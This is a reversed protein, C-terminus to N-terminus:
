IILTYGRFTKHYLDNIACQYINNFPEKMYKDPSGYSLRLREYAGFHGDLFVNKNNVNFKRLGGDIEAEMKSSDILVPNAAPKGWKGDLLRTLGNSPNILFAFVESAQRKVGRNRNNIPKGAMRHSVEGLM